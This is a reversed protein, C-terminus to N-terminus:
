ENEDNKNNKKNIDINKMFEDDDNKNVFFDNDHFNNNM